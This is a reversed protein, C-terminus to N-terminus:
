EEDELSSGQFAISTGLETLIRDYKVVEDEDLTELFGALVKEVIAKNSATTEALAKPTLCYGLVAAKFGDSKKLGAIFTSIAAKFAAAIAFHQGRQGAEVLEAITAWASQGSKFNISKPELRSVLKIKCSAEIADAIFSTFDDTYNEKEDVALSGEKNLHDKVEDLTPVLFSVKGIEKNVGKEQGEVKVRESITTTVTKM